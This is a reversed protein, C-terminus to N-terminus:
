WWDQPSVRSPSGGSRESKQLQKDLDELSQLIARISQKDETLPPVDGQAIQAAASDGEGDEEGAQAEEMQQRAMEEEFDRFEQEESQGEGEESDGQEGDAREQSNQEGQEDPNSESDSKGQQQEEGGSQDYGPKSEQGDQGQSEEGSGSQQGQDEQDGQENEGKQSNESPPPPPPLEELTRKMVALNQQARVDAPFSDIYNLYEDIAKGLAEELAPRDEPKEARLKAEYGFSNTRNFSAKSELEDGSLEAAAQFAERGRMFAEDAPASQGAKLLKGAQATYACGLNYLLSSSGPREVQLDHYINLASDIDGSQLLTNAENMRKAFSEAEVPISCIIGLAVLVMLSRM